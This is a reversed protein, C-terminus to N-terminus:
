AIAEPDGKYEEPVYLPVRDFNFPQPANRAPDWFTMEKPVYPAQLACTVFILVTLEM